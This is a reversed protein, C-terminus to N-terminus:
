CIARSQESETKQNLNYPPKKRSVDSDIGPLPLLSEHKANHGM